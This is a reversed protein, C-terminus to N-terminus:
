KRLSVLGQGSTGHRYATYDRVLFAGISIPVVGYTLGLWSWPFNDNFWFRYIESQTILWNSIGAQFHALPVAFFTVSGIVYMVAGPRDPVRFLLRLWGEPQKFLLGLMFYRISLGPQIPHRSRNVKLCGRVLWLVVVTFFAQELLLAPWAGGIARFLPNLEQELDPTVLWTTYLDWVTTAILLAAYIALRNM